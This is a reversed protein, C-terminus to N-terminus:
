VITRKATERVAKKNVSLLPCELTDAVRSLWHTKPPLEETSGWILAQFPPRDALYKLLEQAPSGVRLASNVELGQRTFLQTCELLFRDADAEIRHLANRQSVLDTNSAFAMPSLILLTVPADMRKAFETTFSLAAESAHIDEFILLIQRFM